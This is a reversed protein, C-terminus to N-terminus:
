KYPRYPNRIEIVRGVVVDAEVDAKPWVSIQGSKQEMLLLHVVSQGNKLKKM